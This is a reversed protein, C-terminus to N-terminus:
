FATRPEFSLISSFRDFHRVIKIGQGIEFRYTQRKSLFYPNKVSFSQDSSPGHKLSIESSDWLSYNQCSVGSPQQIVGGSFFSTSIFFLLKSVIFPSQYARSQRSYYLKFQVDLPIQMVSSSGCMRKTCVDSHTELTNFYGLFHKSSKVVNKKDVQHPSELFISSISNERHSKSPLSLCHLFTSGSPSFQSHQKAPLEFLWRSFEIEQM